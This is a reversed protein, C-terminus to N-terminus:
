RQNSDIRRVTLAIYFENDQFLVVRRGTVEFCILPTDRALFIQDGVVPILWIPLLLSHRQESGDPCSEFVSIDVKQLLDCAM